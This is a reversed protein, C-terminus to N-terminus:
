PAGTKARRAFVRVARRAPDAVYLRGAADSALDLGVTDPAFQDPAAAVSELSGDARYVKVRVIGKEATAVSGDPLLVIDTPNCCGCFGELDMGPRGWSRLRRGDATWLEVRLEGPNVIWASDPGAPAVDFHPSPIVFGHADAGRVQARLTGTRDFVWVIREGADALWVNGTTVAISTIRSSISLPPGEEPDGGPPFAIWGRDRAIWLQGDPGFTAARGADPLETRTDREPPEGLTGRILTRGAVIAFRDDTAIAIATLHSLNTRLPSQEYWRRWQPPVTKLPDLNLTFAPGPDERAVTTVATIAALAAYLAISPLTNM